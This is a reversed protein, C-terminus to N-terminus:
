LDDVQTVIRDTMWEKRRPSRHWVPEVINDYERVGAMFVADGEQARYVVDEENASGLLVCGPGRLTAMARLRLRDVHAKPCPTGTVRAVRGKGLAGGTSGTAKQHVEGLSKLAHLLEDELEDKLGDTCSGCLHLDRLEFGSPLSCYQGNKARLVPFANKVVVCRAGSQLLVCAKDLNTAYRVKAAAVGSAKERMSVMTVAFAARM